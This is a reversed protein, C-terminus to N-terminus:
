SWLLTKLTNPDGRTTCGRPLCCDTEWTTQANKSTYTNDADTQERLGDNRIGEKWELKANGEALTLFNVM